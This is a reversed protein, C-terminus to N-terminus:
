GPQGAPIECLIVVNRNVKDRAQAHRVSRNLISHLLRLTRTSLTRAMEALWADVDEASLERLKRRGLHPLINTAALYRYNTVTSQDRGSLGHTLWSTVADKVTYSHPALALGDDLDRLLEKLKEKADTKTKGSARKVIRKGRADFG